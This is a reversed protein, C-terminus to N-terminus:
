QKGSLREKLQDLQSPPKGSPAGKDGPAGAGGTGQDTIGATPDDTPLTGTGPKNDIEASLDILSDRLSETKRLRLKGLYEAKAEEKDLAVVDHKKLLVRMDFVQQALHKHLEGRIDTMEDILRSNQGQLDAVKAEMAQNQAELRHIKQEPTENDPPPSPPLAPAPVKSADHLGIIKDYELMDATVEVGLAKAKRKVCALIKVKQDSSFSTAQPLRALANRVHAKDHVPFSRNPGCFASEPLAKRASTTLRADQLVIGAAVGREEAEGDEIALAYLDATYDSWDFCSEENKSLLDDALKVIDAWEEKSLRDPM